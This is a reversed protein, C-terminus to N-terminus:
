YQRRSSRLDAVSRDHPTWVPTANSRKLASPGGLRLLGMPVIALYYLLFFVVSAQVEAARHALAKWRAWLTRRANMAM